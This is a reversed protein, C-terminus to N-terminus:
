TPVRRSGKKRGKSGTIDKVQRSPFCQVRASAEKSGRGAVERQTKGPAGRECEQRGGGEGREGGLGARASTRRLIASGRERRVWVSAEDISKKGRM